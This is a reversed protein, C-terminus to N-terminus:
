AAKRSASSGAALASRWFSAAAAIALRIRAVQEVAEDGAEAHRAAEGGGADPPVMELPDRLLRHARGPNWAVRARDSPGASTM